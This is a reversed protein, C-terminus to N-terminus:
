LVIWKAILFRLKRDGIVSSSCWRITSKMAFASLEGSRVGGNCSEGGSFWNIGSILGLMLVSGGGITTGKFIVAAVPACIWVASSFMKLVFPALSILVSLFVM